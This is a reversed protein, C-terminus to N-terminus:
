QRRLVRYPRFCGPPAGSVNACLVPAQLLQVQAYLAAVGDNLDHNGLAVADFRLHNMIRVAAAAATSGLPVDGAHLLVDCRGADRLARAATAVRPWVDAIPGETDNLHVIQLMPAPELPAMGHCQETPWDAPRRRRGRVLMDWGASCRRGRIWGPGAPATAQGYVQQ